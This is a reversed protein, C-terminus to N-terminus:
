KPIKLKQGVRLVNKNKINNYNAIRQISVHYRAAIKGITDGKKVIYYKSNEMFVIDNQYEKIKMPNFLSDKRYAHISDQNEIYQLLNPIRLRLPYNKNFAPIVDKKYQPNLTKIEDMPIQLIQSLQYFHLEKNIMVTDVDSPITIEAPVIGYLPYYKMLYLAGIFAPFYNQTERPLYPSISWYDYTTKGSRAIAKRV